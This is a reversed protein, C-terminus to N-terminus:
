RRLHSYYPLSTSHYLECRCFQSSLILSSIPKSVRLRSTIQYIALSASIQYTEAINLFIGWYVLKKWNISLVSFSFQVAPNDFETRKSATQVFAIHARPRMLSGLPIQWVWSFVLLLNRSPIYIFSRSCNLHAEGLLCAPKRKHQPQPADIVVGISDASVCSSTNGEIDVDLWEACWSEAESDMRPLVRPRLHNPLFPYWSLCTKSTNRSDAAKICPLTSPSCQCRRSHASAIQWQPVRAKAHKRLRIYSIDLM